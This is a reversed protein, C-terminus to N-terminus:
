RTHSDATPSHSEVKIELKGELHLTSVKIQGDALREFRLDASATGVRLGRLELHDVFEPLIPRCIQLRGALADPCLGLLSELLYLISGAAWAQPHDAVPYRVPIHFGERPFGAFLEPMRYDHFHSAADYLAQTVQLAEKDFGYRRMGAVIFGNDHPWVSGLHYSEPNYRRENSSLTRIGWGSFMDAALLRAVTPKARESDIIGTWLAQGPNSSIVQAPRNERGQLALAYFHQDNLWFDQNFRQRLDDAQKDLQEARTAENRRRFLDAIVRRAMYAYGQVEVLAIPSEALCGDANVIANGSDKWGQNILGDGHRPSSYKIYGDQDCDGYQDMWQLAAEVHPRLEDFLDMDATWHIYRGLVILYLITTDITGYFPSYPLEGLHTLEDNRLEHLMKGPQEDKFSNVEKGQYSALLRLTDRAINPQYPLVQMATILSDRGFLTVFWPVGAAFFTKDHLETRLMRLDGIARNMIGELLPSSCQINFGSDWQQQNTQQYEHAQRLSGSVKLEQAANQGAPIEALHLFVLFEKQEQAPIQINFHACTQEKKEPSESFHVFLHRNIKDAGKYGFCLIDDSWHPADAKGMGQPTAMGRILFIDKFDAYFELSFTFEMPVMSYNKFTLVDELAMRQANLTRQWSIGMQNRDITKGPDRNLMPNSLELHGMFGAAGSSFLSEPQQGELRLVYTSLFRTDYYYLGVGHGEGGPVAGDPNCLFYLGDNKIVLADAIDSVHAPNAHTLAALKRAHQAGGVSQGGNQGPKMDDLM